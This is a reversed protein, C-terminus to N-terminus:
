VDDEDKKKKNTEGLKLRQADMGQANGESPLFGNMGSLKTGDLVAKKSDSISQLQHKIPVKSRKLFSKVAGIQASQRHGDIPRRM